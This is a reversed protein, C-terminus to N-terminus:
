AYCKNVDNPIINWSVSHLETLLIKLFQGKLIINVTFSIVMNRKKKKIMNKITQDSETTLITIACLWSLVGWMVM